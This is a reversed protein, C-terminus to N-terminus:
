PQAEQAPFLDGPSLGLARAIAKQEAPKAAREGREIRSLTAQPIGTAKSIKAQTVKKLFRELRLVEQTM